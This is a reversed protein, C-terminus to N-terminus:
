EAEEAELAFTAESVSERLLILTPVVAFVGTLTELKFDANLGAGNGTGGVESPTSVNALSQEVGFDVKSTPSVTHTLTEPTGMENKERRTIIPFAL